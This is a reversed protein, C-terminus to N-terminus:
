KTGSELSSVAFVSISVLAKCMCHWKINLMDRASHSSTKSRFSRKGIVCAFVTLLLGYLRQLHKGRFFEIKTDLMTLYEYVNVKVSLCVILVPCM